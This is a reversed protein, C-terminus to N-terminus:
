GISTARIASAMRGTGRGDRRYSCFLAPYSATCLEAVFIRGPAVGARELQDRASRWGDFHWHASRESPLFWNKWRDGRGGAEFREYVDPGVEYREASISPGAAVLLDSARVGFERGLAAVTTGPVDEALGRWGAHAAAVAGTTPDAFLLPV